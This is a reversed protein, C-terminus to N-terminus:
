DLNPSLLREADGVSVGKRKAYDEVQQQNIKAVGFYRSKPHAFYWGSVSATPLMAYSSTLTMGTNKEVDLLEWLKEKESHEPCAPYGPAPRIGRYDEKILEDNNFDEDSYGWLETRFKYHMMEAFAEAFRDAVAKIMISNYDDHDAEYAAVLPDINIGTTVAFAGMYDQVGDDKPAIFDSLCFNPTNGNKDLQQRLQNLTMLVKGNEDTLEIDENVSNAPFIGVVANAQLLKEDMVKKFMAKADKFLASASEGVVEDTLIDPFKGALEWTRFFPVWDIFEFIESLDYDKFVHIGLKNPTTIQDFKLKPKNKRAAELSVLKTKGKSARRVRVEEYEEKTNQVLAPKLKDSLLSTAVGVAKSADKVYFVGKDYQPEIKVATHAKSTTAGGIMLPLEFGRRTMEKAVFVMEDLSPTILGSLGIIDVNEKIATELITEAPVMVGLDIIEYNNCSLVVGVINKGIDHVDGKVTAMLIKGQTRAGYEDKEAELFPDLYAVSKKMVRASKVVQPLFMKGDGFLDGVVNMGDMLPGEIV